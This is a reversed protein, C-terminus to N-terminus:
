KQNSKTKLYKIVNEVALIENSEVAEAVIEYEESNQLQIIMLM